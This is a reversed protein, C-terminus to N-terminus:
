VRTSSPNHPTALPPNPRPLKPNLSTHAPSALAAAVGTKSRRFADWRDATSAPDSAARRRRAPRAQRGRALAGQPARQTRRRVKCGAGPACCDKGSFVESDPSCIDTNYCNPVQAQRRRSPHAPRAPVRPTPAASLAPCAGRQIARHM